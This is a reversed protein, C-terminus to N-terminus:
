VLTTLAYLRAETPSLIWGDVEVVRDQEFDSGIRTALLKRLEDDEAALVSERGAPLGSVVGDVLRAVSADEPVVDLYASGVAQASSRDDILGALRQALTPGSISVLAQWPKSRALVATAGIGIAAGLFGRRTVRAAESV